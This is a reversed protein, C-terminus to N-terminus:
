IKRSPRGRPTRPAKELFSATTQAILAIELVIVTRRHHPMLQGLFRDLGAIGEVVEPELIVPEVAKRKGVTLSLVETLEVRNLVLFVRADALPARGDSRTIAPLSPQDSALVNQRSGLSPRQLLKPFWRVLRRRVHRILVVIETQKFGVDLLDLALALCFVDFPSFAAEIGQGEAPAIFAYAEIGRGESPGLNRDADLLRKIRTSFIPPASESVARSLTLARWLAWEVQGRKYTETM